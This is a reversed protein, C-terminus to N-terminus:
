IACRETLHRGLRAPVQGVAASVFLVELGHPPLRVLQARVRQEDGGLARCRLPDVRKALCVAARASCCAPRASPIPLLKRFSAPARARPAHRARAATFPRMLAAERTTTTASASEPQM